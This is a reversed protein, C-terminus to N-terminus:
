VPKTLYTPVNADSGLRPLFNTFYNVLIGIPYHRLLNNSSIEPLSQAIESLTQDKLPRENRPL